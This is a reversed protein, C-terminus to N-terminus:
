SPSARRQAVTIAGIICCAVLLLAALLVLKGQEGNSGTVAAAFTRRSDSPTVALSRVSRPRGFGTRRSLSHTPM